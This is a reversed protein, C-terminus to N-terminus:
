YAREFFIKLASEMQDSSITDISAYYTSWVYEFMKELMALEGERGELNETTEGEEAASSDTQNAATTAPTAIYNRM